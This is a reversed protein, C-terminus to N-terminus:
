ELIGLKVAIAAIEFVEEDDRRVGVFEIRAGGGSTEIDASIRILGRSGIHLAPYNGRDLLGDSAIGISVLAM